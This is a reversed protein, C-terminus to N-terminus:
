RELGGLANLGGLQPQKLLLQVAGLNGGGFAAMHLPSTFRAWLCQASVDAGADLLAQIVEACAGGFSALQLPTFGFHDIALQNIDAGRAALAQVLMPGIKPDRAVGNVAGFEPRTSLVLALPPVHVPGTRGHPDAGAELLQKQKPTERKPIHHPAHPFPPPDLLPPLNRHYQAYRGPAPFHCTWGSAALDQSCFRQHCTLRM